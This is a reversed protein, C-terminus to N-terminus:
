RAGTATDHSEREARPITDPLIPVPEPASDSPLVLQYDDLAPLAGQGLLYRAIIRNVMPAIMSGHQAFEIVAGVVIQPDDAPAFAIFWGHDPGHPNQATGTKGAIRLSLIQAAAATGHQVVEVLAERLGALQDESLGFERGPEGSAVVVHPQPADGQPNALMAYFSTMNILTQANEGQGIALNLTVANTWGRPGYRRNYYETSAPFLPQVEGPLDVGSRDRFGLQTADSLLNTLGLKLGLQYFYVDCSYQIAEGLTLSGHGTLRWCRFVRNYYPFGGRCPIPMTTNLDVLGRKAALAAVVLKWTSAPPYRAQIARNMLPSSESQSLASWLAPDYGGIFANPDYGPSSYMALIEGNRPHMIVVAGRGAPPFVSAVYEQLTIDITTRITEGQEPGLTQAVGADRVTRGMADVEVYRVGDRGRLRADYTRELGDRGVLTGLRAGPVQAAALEAETIEGVYGVLHAAMPGFPYRRKPEAQIVLGPILVRREELASVVQFPADRRIVALQHPARRYTREVQAVEASTLRAIPAIRRLTTSLSEPSSELLAVSYGPVNEALVVGNRDTIPGRPALIAVPRLRNEESRLRYRSSALVQVRFFALLLVGCALGVVIRGAQARRALAYGHVWSM